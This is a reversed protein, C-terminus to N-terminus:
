VAYPLPVFCNSPALVVVRGVFVASDEAAVVLGIRVGLAAPGRVLVSSLPVSHSIISFGAM